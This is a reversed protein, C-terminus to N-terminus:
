FYECVLDLSFCEYRCLRKECIVLSVCFRKVM